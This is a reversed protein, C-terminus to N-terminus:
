NHIACRIYQILCHSRSNTISTSICPTVMIFHKGIVPALYSRGPYSYVASWISDTDSIDDSRSRFFSIYRDVTEDWTERRGYKAIKGDGVFDPETFYELTDDWRAYRSTHIYKQYDTPLSTSSM